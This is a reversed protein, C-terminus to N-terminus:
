EKAPAISDVLIGSRGLVTASTGKATYRGTAEGQSIRELAAKVTADAKESAKLEYHTGNVVLRPRKQSHTSEVTGTFITGEAAGAVSAPPKPHAAKVKALLMAAEDLKAVAETKKDDAILKRAEQIAKIAARLDASSDKEASTRSKVTIERVERRPEDAARAGVVGALVVPLLGAIGVTLKKM